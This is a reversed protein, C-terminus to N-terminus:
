FRDFVTESAASLQPYKESSKDDLHSWDDFNSADLPDKISPVHPPKISQKRLKKLDISQLFAGGFIDSEGGVLSGLRLTPDKTLLGQVIEVAGPSFKKPMHFRARIIAKFLESQDMGSKYFPTYGALM